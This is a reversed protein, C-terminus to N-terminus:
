KKKIKKLAAKVHPSPDYIMANVKDSDKRQTDWARGFDIAL